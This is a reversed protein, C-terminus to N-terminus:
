EQQLVSVCGCERHLRAIMLKPNPEFADSAPASRNCDRDDMGSLAAFGEQVDIILKCESLRHHAAAGRGHMERHLLFRPHWGIEFSCRRSAFSSSAAALERRISLLGFASCADRGTADRV